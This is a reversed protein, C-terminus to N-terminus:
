FRGAPQRALQEVIERVTGDGALVAVHRQCRAVIRTVAAAVDAAEAVAVVEAGRSHALVVARDALGRAARLSRPNVLRCPAAPARRPEHDLPTGADRRGAPLRPLPPLPPDHRALHARRAHRALRLLAGRGDEPAGRRARSLAERLVPEVGGGLRADAGMRSTG